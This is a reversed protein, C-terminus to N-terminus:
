WRLLRSPSADIDVVAVHAVSDDTRQTSGGVPQLRRLALRQKGLESIQVPSRQFFAQRLEAHREGVVEPDEDELVAFPAAWHSGGPTNANVEGFLRMTRTQPRANALAQCRFRQLAPRCDDVFDKMRKPRPSFGGAGRYMVYRTFCSQQYFPEHGM